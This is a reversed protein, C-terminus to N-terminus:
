AIEDDITSFLITSRSCFIFLVFYFVFFIIIILSVKKWFGLKCRHYVSLSMRPENRRSFFIRQTFLYNATYVGIEWPPPPNPIHIFSLEEDAYRRHALILSSHNKKRIEKKGDSIVKTYFNKMTM